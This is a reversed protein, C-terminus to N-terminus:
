RQRVSVDAAVDNAAWCLSSFRAAYHLPIFSARMLDSLGVRVEGFSVSPHIIISHKSSYATRVPDCSGLNGASFMVESSGGLPHQARVRVGKAVITTKTGGRRMQPRYNEHLQHASSAV